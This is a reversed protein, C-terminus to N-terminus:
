SCAKGPNKISFVVKFQVGAGPESTVTLTGGMQESLDKVLRLGLSTKRREEFDPPLGVGTDSVKLCWKDGSEDPQLEVSVVGQCENAFGHKLSNSILENVLLGCNIAQDMGVQVSGVHSRRQVMGPHVVHARFIQDTLRDLYEGVDVSAFTGTHYLSEHLLAMSRIRGTMEAFAVKTDAHNSRGGELRLLSIIVQLNNKVRHHVEKLLGIKEQVVLELTQEARRREAL